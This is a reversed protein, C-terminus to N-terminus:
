KSTPGPLVHKLLGVLTELDALGVMLSDNTGFENVSYPASAGWPSLPNEGGVLLQNLVRIVETMRAKEEKDRAQVQAQYEQQAEHRQREQEHYEDWQQIIQRPQIVKVEVFAAPAGVEKLAELVAKPLGGNLGLVDEATVKDLLAVVEPTFKRAAYWDDAVIALLGYEYRYGGNGPKRDEVKMFVQGQERSAHTDRRYTTLSLVWVQDPSSEYKHEKRAYSIGLQIHKTQM